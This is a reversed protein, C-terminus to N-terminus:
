PSARRRRARFAVTGAAVGLAALVGAALAPGADTGDATAGAAQAGPLDDGPNASSSGIVRTNPNLAPPEQPALPTGSPTTTATAISRSTTSSTALERTTTTTPATTATTSTTAAASVPTLPTTTTTPASPDIVVVEGQMGQSQHVRCFYAYRGPVRFRFRYEDGETMLGRPSSDFLGDRSTVTHRDDTAQWVVSDGLEIEVRPPAFKAGSAKVVATAAQAPLAGSLAIGAAVLGSVACVRWTPGSM